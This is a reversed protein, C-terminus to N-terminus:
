VRPSRRHLTSLINGLLHPLLCKSWKTCLQGWAPVAANQKARKHQKTRCAWSAPVSQSKSWPCKGWHIIGGVLSSSAFAHSFARHWTDVGVCLFSLAQGLLSSHHISALQSNEKAPSSEQYSNLILGCLPCYPSFRAWLHLWASVEKLNFQNCRPWNVLM